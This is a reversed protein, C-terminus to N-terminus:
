PQFSKKKRFFFYALAAAIALALAILHLPLGQESPHAPLGQESVKEWRAEIVMPESVTIEVRLQSSLLEGAAYWGIFRYKEGNEEVISDPVKLEVKAGRPYWNEGSVGGVESKVAIKYQTEWLAELKLPKDVTVTITAEKQGNSWGKFVRRTGNGQDIITPEVSVTAVKGAGYWGSGAPKGYSSEVELYYEAKSYIAEVETDATVEIEREPEKAGDSWGSFVYRVGDAEVSGPVKVRYTGPLLQLSVAPGVYREGGIFAYFANGPLKVTLSVPSPKVYKYVYLGGDTALAILGDPGLAADNINSGPELKYQPTGQRDLIFATGNWLGVLLIDGLWELYTIEEGVRFEWIKIKNFDKDYADLWTGHKLILEGGPGIVFSDSGIAYEYRWLLNGKEDFVWLHWDHAVVIKNESLWGMRSVSYVSSTKTKNSILFRGEPNVAGYCGTGEYVLWNGRWWIRKIEQYWECNVSVEKLKKGDWVNYFSISGPMAVALIGESSVSAMPVYVKNEKSGFTTSFKLTFNEFYVHLYSNKKRYGTLMLFGNEFLADMAEFDHSPSKVEAGESDYFLPEALSSPGMLYQPVAALVGKSSWSVRLFVGSFNKSWLERYSADYVTVKDYHWTALMGSPSWAAYWDVFSEEVRGGVGRVEISYPHVSFGGLPATYETSSEWKGWKVAVRGDVSCALYSMYKGRDSYEWLKRGDVGYVKVTDLSSIYAVMGPCAVLGFIGKEEFVAVVNGKLDLVYLKKKIDRQNQSPDKVEVDLHAIIGNEGDWLVELSWVDGSEELSKEWVPNGSADLLKVEKPTLAVLKDGAWVITSKEHGLPAEWLKRGNTDYVLVTSNYGGGSPFYGIWRKLLVALLGNSGWAVKEPRGRAIYTINGREGPRFSVEPWSLVFALNGGNDYVLVNQRSDVVALYDGPGWAVVNKLESIEDLFRPLTFWTSWILKGTKDFVFFKNATTYVALKDTPSWFVGKILGATYKSWQPKLEPLRSLAPVSTAAPLLLTTLFMLTIATLAAIKILILRAL